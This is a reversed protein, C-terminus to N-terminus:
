AEAPSKVVLVKDVARRISAGCRNLREEIREYGRDIHYVRRVETTGKAALGALVLAASARLDSAMVPAGHLEKVGHIIAAAGEKRVQAGLRNLEPVHMFRDPYIKENIVSIGEARALLAMFQAQLDTPFGPYPLTTVDVPHIREPGTVRVGGEARDATAGTARLRDILAGLHDLRVNEVVLDGRTMAAACMFTGAEIRDPIVTHEAGQLSEVGTVVLRHTGAGEIKAGCAILFRALDEVEPECAANEIVTTGKALTAAMLVNATGTVTSGFPGGLYIEGGRLGKKAEAIVYGHETRIEAGLAAFGKLHLDIPRVGIVCGGPLSVKAKGRRALLPGLVCVSARMTSVNEYSAEVRTADTVKVTVEGDPRHEVHAGLERLIKVMMGIDSLHPVGHLRTKGEVLLTAALLPLADNKSGNVRVRGHLRRGGEIVLKDM